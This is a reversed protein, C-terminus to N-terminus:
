PGVPNTSELSGVVRFRCSVVPCEGCRPDRARCITAAFDLLATLYGEPDSHPVLSLALRQLEPDYRIDALKRPGFVRELVRAVNTDIPAVAERFLQVAIARAIYQGIGPLAELDSARSPLGQQSVVGALARLAASRRKQLGLPRLLNELDATPIEALSRWDPCRTMISDFVSAVHEARTQQLLIEAVVLEYPRRPRQRWPFSRRNSRGWRLIALQFADTCSACTPVPGGPHTRHDM